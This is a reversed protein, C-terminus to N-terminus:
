EPRYKEYWSRCRNTGGAFLKLIMICSAKALFWVVSLAMGDM